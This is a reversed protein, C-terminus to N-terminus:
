LRCMHRTEFGQRGRECIRQSFHATWFEVAARPGITRWQRLASERDDRGGTQMPAPIFRENHTGGIVPHEGPRARMIEDACVNRGIEVARGEGLVEVHNQRQVPHVLQGLAADDAAYGIMMIREHTSRLNFFEFGCRTLQRPMQFGLTNRADEHNRDSRITREGHASETMEYLAFTQRCRADTEHTFVRFRGTRRPGQEHREIEPQREARGAIRIQLMSDQGCQQLQELPAAPRNEFFERIDAIVIDLM